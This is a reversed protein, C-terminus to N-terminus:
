GDVRMEKRIEDWFREASMKEYNRRAACEDAHCIADYPCYWCANHSSGRTYPNAQVDGSAIQDVMEGLLRYIYSELLTFQRQDAVDGSISGDKRKKISLRKYDDTPDMAALVADNSFILGKRKFVKERELAAADDDLLGEATVLPVRAPFYQVGAPLFGESIGPLKAKKLAFLYLLMQLGLGNFIDCYDFDKKGTKYDVVRVYASGANHWVDVRDVFGQIVAKMRDGHVEIAPVDANHGGFKLEFHIPEFESDRLEAWLESVIIALEEFNRRLLYATRQSDLDGFRHKIYGDSYGAAIDLIEDKTVNSFGDRRVVEAATHELVDHIYTGFEAPDITAEKRERARLGYKLFYALRCDAYKDIQSASLRLTKGYLKEINGESVTGTQYQVKDLISDFEPKLNLDIADSHAHHSVLFAAADVANYLVSGLGMCCSGMDASHNQMRKYIFSPQGSPCTIHVSQSAGCFVGFIESFAIQLGDDMGGTLPIGMSRLANREPDTLIDGSSGYAPLAGELAGIVFLHQVEECRMVSVSGVTVADLVTPITGVTYQSILLKLLRTFYVEDWSTHGMVDYMQELASILIDWLQNLIQATRNDGKADLQESFTSLREAFHSEELFNYLGVTQQAVTSANRLSIQLTKIPDLLKFRYENLVRLLEESQASKIGELGDPHKDWNHLWATGSIGWLVAYNEVLDCQEPTLPSFMSRAYRIVDEREFGGVAADVAALVTKIVPKELLNDSGSLYSPIDCRNLVSNLVNKYVSMDACAIGIDRYRAGKHVLESIKEVVANCEAHISDFQATALACHVDQTLEGQFLNQAILQTDNSREEVTIIRVPVGFREASRLISRATEGAKEFALLKTGPKDCNLSITIDPCNAIFHELIAMHQRTFDPFGDVYFTHELAFNSGELEELLWSMQDRPDRLGQACIANYSELLLALEELKQAFAGGSQQSAKMLDTSTICCRKFEDIANLLAAIFEPKTGVSAYHKLRSRVQNIAAAMAVVRGGNDLCNPAGHGVSDSVRKALRTFSLVEAFRSSTVGARECLIRESEHSILEPVILIRNGQKGSIDEAIADMVASRNAVWDKGIILTLM